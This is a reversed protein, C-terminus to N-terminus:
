LVFLGDLNVYIFDHLCNILQLLGFQSKKQFFLWTFDICFQDDSGSSKGASVGYLEPCVIFNIIITRLIRKVHSKRITNIFWREVRILEIWREVRWSDVTVLIAVLAVLALMTVWSPSLASSVSANLPIDARSLFLNLAWGSLLEFIANTWASTSFSFDQRSFDTHKALLFM